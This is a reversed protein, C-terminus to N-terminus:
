CVQTQFRVLLVRSQGTFEGKSIRCSISDASYTLNDGHLTLQRILLHAYDMGTKQHRLSDNDFKASSSDLQLGKLRFVMKDLDITKVDARLSGLQLATSLANASNRYDLASNEIDIKGLRLAMGGGKAAPDPSAKAPATGAVSGTGMPRGQYIRGRLGKLAISPAGYRSNAPDLEDM